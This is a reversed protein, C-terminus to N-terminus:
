TFNKLANQAGHRYIHDNKLVNQKLIQDYVDEMIVIMEGERSRILLGHKLRVKLVFIEDENLDVNM